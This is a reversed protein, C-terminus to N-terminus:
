VDAPLPLLEVSVRLPHDLPQEGGLGKLRPTRVEIHSRDIYRGALTANRLRTVRDKATGGERALIVRKVQLAIHQCRVVARHAVDADAAGYSLRIM